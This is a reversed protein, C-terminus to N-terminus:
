EAIELGSDQCTRGDRSNCLEERCGAKKARKAGRLGDCEVIEGKLMSRAQGRGEVLRGTQGAECTHSHPICRNGNVAFERDPKTNIRVFHIKRSPNEQPAVGTEIGTGSESIVVRAHNCRRCAADSDCVHEM